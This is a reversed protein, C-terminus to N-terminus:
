ILRRAPANGDQLGLSYTSRNRSHIACYQQSSISLDLSPPSLPVFLSQVPTISVCHLKYSSPLLLRSAFSCHEFLLLFVALSSLCGSRARSREKEEDTMM